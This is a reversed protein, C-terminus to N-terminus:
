SGPARLPAASILPQTSPMVAQPTVACLFSRSPHLKEACRACAVDAPVDSAVFCVTPVSNVSSHTALRMAPATGGGAMCPTVEVPVPDDLYRHRLQLEGRVSGARLDEESADRCRLLFAEVQDPDIALSHLPRGVQPGRHRNHGSALLRRPSPRNVLGNKKIIDIYCYSYDQLHFRGLGEISRVARQLM